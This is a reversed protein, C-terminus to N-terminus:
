FSFKHTFPGSISEFKLAQRNGFTGNVVRPVSHGTPNSTTALSTSAAVTSNSNANAAKKEAVKTNQSADTQGVADASQTAKAVTAAAPVPPMSAAPSPKADTVTSNASVTTTKKEAVKATQSADTQGLADAPPTTKAVTAAAPAAKAKALWKSHRKNHVKLQKKLRKTASKTLPKDDKDSM